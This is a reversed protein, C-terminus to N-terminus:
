FHVTRLKFIQAKLMQETEPTYFMKGTFNSYNSNQGKFGKQEAELESWGREVKKLLELVQSQMKRRFETEHNKYEKIKLDLDKKIGEATERLDNRESQLTSLEENLIELGVRKQVKSQFDSETIRNAAALRKKVDGIEGDYERLNV